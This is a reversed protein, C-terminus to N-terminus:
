LVRRQCDAGCAHNFADNLHGLLPKLSIGKRNASQKGETHPASEWKANTNPAMLNPINPGNPHAMTENTARRGTVGIFRTLLM